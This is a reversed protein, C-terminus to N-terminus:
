NAPDVAIGALRWGADAPAAYLRVRFVKRGGRWELDVFCETEFGQPWTDPAAPVRDFGAAFEPASETLRLLEARAAADGGVAPIQALERYRRQNLMTVFERGLRRADAVTAVPLAPRPPETRPAEDRGRPPVAASDTTPVATVASKGVPEQRPAILPAAAIQQNSVSSGTGQRSGPSAPPGGGAADPARSAGSAQASPSVDRADPNTANPAAAQPPTPAPTLSTGATAPPEPDGRTLAYAALLVVLGAAAGLAVSGRSRAPEPTPAATARM